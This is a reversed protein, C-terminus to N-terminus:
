VRFCCYTTKELVKTVQLDDCNLCSLDSTQIYGDVCTCNGTSDLKAYPQCRCTTTGGNTFTYTPNASDCSLCDGDTTMLYGDSCSCYGWSDPFAGHGCSCETTNSGDGMLHSCSVCSDGEITETYGETCTCAGTENLSAFRDCRCSDSLFIGTIVTCDFCTANEEYDPYGVPLEGTPCTGEATVWGLAEVLYSFVWVKMEFFTSAQGAVAFVIKKM